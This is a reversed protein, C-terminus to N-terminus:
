KDKLIFKYGQFYLERQGKRKREEIERELEIIDNMDIIVQEQIKYPDKEPSIVMENIGVLAVGLMVLRNVLKIDM